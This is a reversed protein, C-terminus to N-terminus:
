LPALKAAEGSDLFFVNIKVNKKTIAEIKM